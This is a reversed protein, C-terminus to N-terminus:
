DVREQKLVTRMVALLFMSSGVAGEFLCSSADVSEPSAKCNCVLVLM